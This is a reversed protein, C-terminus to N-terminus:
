RNLSLSDDDGEARSRHSEAQPPVRVTNDPKLHTADHDPVEEPVLPITHPMRQYEQLAQRLPDVPIAHPAAVPSIDMDPMHPTSVGAVIMSGFAFSEFPLPNAEMYAHTGMQRYRLFEEELRKEEKKKRKKKEEEEEEEKQEERRAEDQLMARLIGFKYILALPGGAEPNEVLDIDALLAQIVAARDSNNLLHPAIGAARLYSLEKESLEIDLAHPTGANAYDAVTM